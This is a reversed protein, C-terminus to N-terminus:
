RSILISIAVYPKAFVKMKIGSGDVLTINIHYEGFGFNSFAFFFFFFIANDKDTFIKSSKHLLSLCCFRTFSFIIFLYFVLACDHQYRTIFQYLTLPSSISFMPLYPSHSYWALHLRWTYLMLNPSYYM